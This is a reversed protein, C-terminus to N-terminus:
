QMGALNNCGFIPQNLKEKCLYVLPMDFGALGSADAKDAVFVMRINSLYLAGTTSWRYLSLLLLHLAHHKSSGTHGHLAAVAACYSM